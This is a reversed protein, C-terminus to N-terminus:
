RVKHSSFVQRRGEASWAQRNPCIQGISLIRNRGGLTTHIAASIAAVVEPAIMGAPLVGNANSTAGTSRNNSKKGTEVSSIRHNLSALNKAVFLLAGAIIVLLATQFSIPDSIQSATEVSSSTVALLQPYLM